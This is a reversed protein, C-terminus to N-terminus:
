SLRCTEMSTGWWDEDASATAYSKKAAERFPEIDGHTVLAMVADRTLRRTDPMRLWERVAQDNLNYPRGSLMSKAVSKASQFITEADGVLVDLAEDLERNVTAM